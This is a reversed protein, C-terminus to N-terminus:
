LLSSMLPTVSGLERLNNPRKLLAALWVYLAIGLDKDRIEFSFWSTSRSHNSSPSGGNDGPAVVVVAVAGGCSASDVMRESGDVESMSHMALTSCDSESLVVSMSAMTASYSCVILTVAAPGTSVTRMGEGPEHHIAAMMTKNMHRDVHPAAM